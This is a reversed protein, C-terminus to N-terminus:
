LRYRLLGGVGGLLQLGEHDEVVEVRAGTSTAMRVLEARQEEDVPAQPDLLLVDVQGRELAARTEAYRAVGLGNSRIAGVLQDAVSSSSDAEVAALIPAIEEMVEDRGTRIDLRLVEDHVLEGVRAPLADRLLPIAVEDGALILLAAGEDKVLREIAAAAEKAFSARNNEITRQYRSQSWGGVSTKHYLKNNKDDPGGVEQLSGYRTVFLRATNSDVVAVVATEHEDILRALQFLDPAPGVTVATDFALPAEVVEFLDRASSAFIALGHIEPSFERELYDDIRAADAQISRLEDHRREYTKEIESLRDRLVILGARVAPNQGTVQPRVDLYVSLIPVDSPELAALRELVDRM